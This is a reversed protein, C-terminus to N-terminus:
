LNMGVATATTHSCSSLSIIKFSNKNLTVSAFKIDATLWMDIHLMPLIDGKTRVPPVVHVYTTLHVGLDCLGVGPRGAGM